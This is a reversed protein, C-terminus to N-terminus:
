PECVDEAVESQVKEFYRVYTYPKALVQPDDATVRYELYKGDLIPKVREVLHLADSHSAGAANLWTRENFSVTDIVLSGGDWRAVSDGQWTPTSEKPHERNMYITRIHGHSVDEFLMVIAGKAYALEIKTGARAMMRFPGIPQCLEEPDQTLDVSKVQQVAAPALAIDEPSGVNRLGGPLTVREGISQYVGALDPPASASPAKQAAPSAAAVILTLIAPVSARRLM